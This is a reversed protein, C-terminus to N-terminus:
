PATPPQDAPVDPPEVYPKRDLNNVHPPERTTSDSRRADHDYDLVNRDIRGDSEMLLGPPENIASAPFGAINLLMRGPGYGMHLYDVWNVAFANDPADRDPPTDLRNGKDEFPDEFWLGWHSVSGNVIQYDSETWARRPVGRFEVREEEYFGASPTMMDADITASSDELPNNVHACGASACALAVVAACSIWRSRGLLAASHNM